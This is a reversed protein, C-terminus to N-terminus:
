LANIAGECYQLTLELTGTGALLMELNFRQDKNLQSNHSNKYNEIETLMSLARRKYQLALYYMKQHAGNYYYEDRLKLYEDLLNSGVEKFVVIDQDIQKNSNDFESVTSNSNSQESNIQSNNHQIHRHENRVKTINEIEKNSESIENAIFTSDLIQKESLEKQKNMLGSCSFIIISLLSIGIKNLLKNKLKM